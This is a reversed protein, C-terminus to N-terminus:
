EGDAAAQLVQLFARNKAKRAKSMFVHPLLMKLRARLIENDLDFPMDHKRMVYLLSQAMARGKVRAVSESRGSSDGASHFVNAEHALRLEVGSTKLRVSFDDDEHFLFINEDFGGIADFHERRVAICSGSLIPIASDHSPPAGTWTHDAHLLRSRKRFYRRRGSYICPNFAADPYRVMAQLLGQVAGKEFSVDPNAFVFFRASSAGAGANCAAGYGRNANMRVIRAGFRAAVGVSADESANDVVVVDVGAPLSQFFRELVNESNYTVVIICAERLLASVPGADKDAMADELQSARQM